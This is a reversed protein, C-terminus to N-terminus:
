FCSGFKVDRDSVIIKLLGHLKVVHDFFIVTVCSTYSTKSCLIFHAMKSFKDVVILISNCRKQM